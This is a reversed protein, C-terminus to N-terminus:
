ILFMSKPM